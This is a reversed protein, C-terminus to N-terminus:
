DPPAKDRERALKLVGERRKVRTATNTTCAVVM